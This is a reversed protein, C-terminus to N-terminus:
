SNRKTSHLWQTLRDRTATLGTARWVEPWSAATLFYRRGTRQADILSLEYMTFPEANGIVEFALPAVPQSQAVAKALACLLLRRLPTVTAANETAKLDFLAVFAFANGKVAYETFSRNECYAVGDIDSIYFGRPLRERHLNGFPSGGANHRFRVGNQLREPTLPSYNMRDGKRRDRHASHVRLRFACARGLRARM